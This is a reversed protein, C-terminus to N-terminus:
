KFPNKRDFLKLLEFEGGSIRNQLYYNPFYMEVANEEENNLSMSNTNVIIRTTDLPGFSDISIVSNEVSGFIMRDLHKRMTWHECIRRKINNSQGIYVRCYEDLILIYMGPIKKYITLDNIEKYDTNKKLFCKIADNFEEKDLSKYFDMNIDFNKLILDKRELCYNLSHYICYHNLIYEKIYNDIDNNQEIENTFIHYELMNFYHGLAVEDLTPQRKRKFLTYYYYYNDYLEKYIESDCFDKIVNELEELSNPRYNHYKMSHETMRHFTNRRNILDIVCYNDRSIKDYDVNIRCNFHTVTQKMTDERILAKYCKILRM